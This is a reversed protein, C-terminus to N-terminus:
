NQTPEIEDSAKQWWSVDLKCNAGSPSEVKQLEVKFPIQWRNHWSNIRTQRDNKSSKTRDKSSLNINGQKTKHINKQLYQWSDGWTEVDFCIYRKKPKFEREPLRLIKAIRWVSLKLKTKSLRLLILNLRKSPLM